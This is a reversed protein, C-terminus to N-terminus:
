EAERGIDHFTHALSAELTKVVAVSNGAEHLRLIGVKALHWDTLLALIFGPLNYAQLAPSHLPVRQAFFRAQHPPTCM